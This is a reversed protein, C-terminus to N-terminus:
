TPRGADNRRQLLERFIGLFELIGPPAELPSYSDEFRVWARVITGWAGIQETQEEASYISHEFFLSAEISLSIFPGLRATKFMSCTAM